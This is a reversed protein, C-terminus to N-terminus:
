LRQARATGVRARPRGVRLRRALGGRDRVVPLARSRGGRHGRAAGVGAGTGARPAL